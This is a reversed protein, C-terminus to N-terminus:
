FSLSIVATPQGAQIGPRWTLTRARQAAQQERQNAMGRIFTLVVDTAAILMAGRTALFYRHHHANAQQYFPEAVAANRQQQYLAYDTQAKQRELLGYAVLGYCSIALVPRLGIRPKPTQVFINGIGPAVASLLAWAPGTYRRKQALTTDPQVLAPNTEVNPTAPASASRSVPTEAIPKDAQKTERPAENVARQPPTAAPTAEAVPKEAKPSPTATRSETATPAPSQQVPGAAIATPKRPPKDALPPTLAGARLLVNVRIEENLTIGNAQADWLIRRDSGADINTGWHGTVFEAAPKITSGRRRSKIDFYVSDGPRTTLLDYRIEIKSSDIVRIRVNQIPNKRDQAQATTILLFGIFLSFYRM